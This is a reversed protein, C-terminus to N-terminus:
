EIKACVSAVAVCIVLSGAAFLVTLVPTESAVAPKWIEGDFPEPLLPPFNVILPVCILKSTVVSVTVEIRAFIM